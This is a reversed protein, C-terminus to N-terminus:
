GIQSAQLLRTLDKLVRRRDLDPPFRLVVNGVPDLLYVHGDPLRGQGPFAQAAAPPVPLERLDKERLVAPADAPTAADVLLVVRAVRDEDRATALRIQRLAELRGRCADACPAPEIDVLLWRRPSHAVPDTWGYVRAALAEPLPQPGVLEGYNMRRGTAGGFFVFYYALLLPALFILALLVLQRRARRVRVPDPPPAARTDDTPM